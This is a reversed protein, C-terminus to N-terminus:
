NRFQLNLKHCCNTFCDLHCFQKHSFCDTKRQQVVVSLGQRGWVGEEEIRGELFQVHEVCDHFTGVEWRLACSAALQSRKRAASPSQPAPQFGSSMSCFYPRTEYGACSCNQGREKDVERESFLCCQSKGCLRSMKFVDPHPYPPWSISSSPM